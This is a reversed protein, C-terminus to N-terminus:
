LQIINKILIKKLYHLIKTKIIQKLNIYKIFGSQQNVYCKIKYDDLMVSKGDVNTRVNYYCGPNYLLTLNQRNFLIKNKITEFNTDSIIDSKSLTILKKKLENNKYVIFECQDYHDHDILIFNVGGDINVYQFIDTKNEYHQILKIDSRKLMKKRFPMLISNAGGGFWKSPTIMFIKDSIKDSKLIFEPYYPTSSSGNTKIDKHYPPNGIIIDFKNINWETDIDLDFFNGTYMNLKYKDGRMIQKYIEMNGPNIECVYIMNELIHKSREYKNKIINKLRDYLRYYLVIPFNGIGNAPDFWKLNKNKFINPYNDELINLMNEIVNIPTFVEGNNRKEDERPTLLKNIFNM